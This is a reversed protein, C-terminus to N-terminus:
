VKSTFANLEVETLDGKSQLEQFLSLASKKVMYTILDFKGRLFASSLAKRKKKYLPDDSDMSVINHHTLPKQSHAKM